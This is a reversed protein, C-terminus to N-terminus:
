KSCLLLVTVPTRIIYGITSKNNSICKKSKQKLQFIAKIKICLPEKWYYTNITIGTDTPRFWSKTMGDSGKSIINSWYIAINGTSYNRASSNHWYKEVTQM